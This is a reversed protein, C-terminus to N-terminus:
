KFTLTISHLTEPHANAFWKAFDTEKPESSRSHEECCDPSEDPITLYYHRHRILDNIVRRAREDEHSATATFDKRSWERLFEIDSQEIM